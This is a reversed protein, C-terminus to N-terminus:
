RPRRPRARAPGRAPPRRVPRSVDALQLVSCVLDEVAEPLDAPPELADIADRLADDLDELDDPDFMRYLAALPEVAAPDDADVLAPFREMAVAFGAVWPLVSAVPDGDDAEIVWPDFWARRAIADDLARARDRVARALAPPPSAGSTAGPGGRLDLVPAWWHAEDPVRPQLLLGCVYGDLMSLDMPEAPAAIADLLAQVREPDVPAQRIDRESPPPM